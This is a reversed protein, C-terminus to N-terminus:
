MGWVGGYKQTRLRGNHLDNFEAFKEITCCIQWSKDLTEKEVYM